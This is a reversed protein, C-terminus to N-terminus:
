PQGMKHCGLNRVLPPIETSLNPPPQSQAVTDIKAFLALIEIGTIGSFNIHASLVAHQPALCVNTAPCTLLSPISLWALISVWGKSGM